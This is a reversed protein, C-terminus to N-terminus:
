ENDDNEAELNNLLETMAPHPKEFYVIGPIFYKQQLGWTWKKLQRNYLLHHRDAELSIIKYPELATKCNDILQKIKLPELM